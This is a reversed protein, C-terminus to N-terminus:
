ALVDVMLGTGNTPKARPRQETETASNPARDAVTPRQAASAKAAEIRATRRYEARTALYQSAAERADDRRSQENARIYQAAEIAM